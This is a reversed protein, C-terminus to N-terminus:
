EQRCPAPRTRPPVHLPEQEALISLLEPYDVPKVLHRDFGAEHSRRRDEEQGLGTVAVVIVDKGWPQERIWRCVDLGNLKPLGIDLLVLDPHLREVAEVADQGDHATHTENGTMALLKALSDAADVNDDVVLIRRSYAVSPSASVAQDEARRAELGPLQVVFETGRNLGESHVTISGGHMEILQKVLTLGIGLGGQTREFPVDIQTFLEFVRDLQDPPIGIGTDKIKVVANTGVRTVDVWVAGGAPTYKCANNFMNGFIQALRVPDAYLYIPEPLVNVRVRIDANAALPQCAELAQHIVPALVIREKRLEIKNHTIRSVDLLDDVLRTLHGLQRQMTDRAQQELAGGSGARNLIELTNRLPALPGRLEHALTALFEDKRQDALALRRRSERLVMEHRRITMLSWWLLGLLLGIEILTRAATGTALDFLGAREGELRALGLIFAVLVIAPTARRAVYGVAGDDEGLMRMPGYEPISAILGASVAVIFIAAQLAIMTLHPASFFESAQYLYGTIALMSIALTIIALLPVLRRKAPAKATVLVLATGILTWCFAGPPGMRGPTVVGTRGWERDFMLFTNLNELNLSSLYQVVASAGLFAVVLGLAVVLWRYGRALLLLAAGACTVAITANPQISIGNNYWDTLRQVNAAWGLFSAAGGLLAFLGAYSVFAPPRVTGRAPLTLNPM